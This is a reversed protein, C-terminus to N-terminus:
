PCRPLGLRVSPAFAVPVHSAKHQRIFRPPTAANLTPDAPRTRGTDLKRRRDSVHDRDRKALIKALDIRGPASNHQQIATGADNRSESFRQRFFRRPPRGRDCAFWGPAPAARRHSAPRQRQSPAAPGASRAARAVGAIERRLSALARKSMFACIDAKPGPMFRGSSRLMAPKLENRFRDAKLALAMFRRITGNVGKSAPRNGVNLQAASRSRGLSCANSFRVPEHFHSPSFPHDVFLQSLRLPSQL